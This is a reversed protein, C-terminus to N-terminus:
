LRLERCTAFAHKDARDEEAEPLEVGQVMIVHNHMVVPAAITM